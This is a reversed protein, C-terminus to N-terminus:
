ADRQVHQSRQFGILLQPRVITAIPEGDPGLVHGLVLPERWDVSLQLAEPPDFIDGVTHRPQDDPCATDLM